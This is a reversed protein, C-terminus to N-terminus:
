CRPLGVDSPCGLAYWSELDKVLEHRKSSWLGASLLRGAWQVGRTLKLRRWQWRHLSKAAQAGYHRLFFLERSRHFEARSEFRVKQASAGGLHIVRFDPLHMVRRGSGRLRWCLDTEEFFFFYGEDFGGVARLAATDCLMVAGVVAEVDRPARLGKRIEGRWWSVLNRNLSESWLDVRATVSNQDRGDEHLLRAGLLAVDPHAQLFALAAELAGPQVRADTNMLLVRPTTVHPLALNNARAFGMNRGLELLRVDPHTSRIWEPSGDTSGNDAVVVPMSPPLSDLAGALLHRGNWNVLLATCDM